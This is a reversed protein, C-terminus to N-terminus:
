LLAVLATAVREPVIGRLCDIRGSCAGFRAPSFWCPACGATPRLVTVNPPFRGLTDAPTPGFILVTPVGLAAAVHGLGSDNAVVAAGAAMAGATQRLSLRGVLSRVHAPFPGCRAMDEATGVLAVDAYAEALAPFYPWRKAAMEGGKCGPALVLTEPGVGLDPEAPVPLTCCPADAPTVVGGLSAAFALYWRQEDRYFAADDPRQVANAVSRYDAAYRSWYFPPLAPLVAHYSAAPASEGVSIRRLAGWGRLLDATEPYDGDIRADVTFGRRALLVLLPTALVINGIGAALHVLLVDTAPRTSM